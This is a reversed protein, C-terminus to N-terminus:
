RGRMAALVLRVEEETEEINSKTRRTGRHKILAEVCRGFAEDSPWEERVPGTSLHGSHLMLCNECRYTVMDKHRWEDAEALLAFRVKFAWEGPEDPRAKRRCMRPAAAPDSEPEPLGACEYSCYQGLIVTDSFGCKCERCRTREPYLSIRAPVKVDVSLDGDVIVCRLAERYESFRPPLAM